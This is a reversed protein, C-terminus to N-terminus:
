SRIVSPTEPCAPLPLNIISSAIASPLHEISGGRYIFCHFGQDDPLGQETVELRPEFILTRLYAREVTQSAIISKGAMM